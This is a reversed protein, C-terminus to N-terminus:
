RYNKQKMIDIADEYFKMHLIESDKKPARNLENTLARQGFNYKPGESPQKGCRICQYSVGREGTPVELSGCRCQISYTELIKINILIPSSLNETISKKHKRIFLSQIKKIM